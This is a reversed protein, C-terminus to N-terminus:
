PLVTVSIQDQQSELEAGDWAQDFLVTGDSVRTVRVRLSSIQVFGFLRREGPGLIVDQLDSAPSTHVTVDSTGANVVTLQVDQYVLPETPAPDDYTTSDDCDEDVEDGWEFDCGALLALGVALVLKGM